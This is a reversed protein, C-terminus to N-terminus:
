RGLRRTRRKSGPRTRSELAEQLARVETADMGEVFRLLASGRDETASLAQSMVEAIYGARSETPRYVYARGQKERVVMGKRHLNDLVTMVTTYAISRTAQLDELVDRTSLPEGRNWLREMVVAELQGLNTVVVSADQDVTELTRIAEVVYGCRLEM